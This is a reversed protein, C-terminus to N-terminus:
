PTLAACLETAVDPDDIFRVVGHHTGDPCDIGAIQAIVGPGSARVVVDSGHVTTSASSEDGPVAYDDRWNAQSTVIAKPGAGTPPSAGRGRRM